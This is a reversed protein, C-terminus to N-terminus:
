SILKVNFFPSNNVTSPGEPQPFVVKNFIAAPNRLGVEPEILKPPFSILPGPTSLPM